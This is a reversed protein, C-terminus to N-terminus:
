SLDYSGTEWVFVKGNKHTIQSTTFSLPFVKAGRLLSEELDVAKKPLKIVAHPIKDSFVLLSSDGASVTIKCDLQIKRIAKNVALATPSFRGASMIAADICEQDIEIKM